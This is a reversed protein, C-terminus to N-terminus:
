RPAKPAERKLILGDLIRNLEEAALSVRPGPRTFLNEDVGVISV